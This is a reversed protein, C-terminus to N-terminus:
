LIGNVVGLRLTETSSFISIGKSFEPIWLHFLFSQRYESISRLITVDVNIAHSKHQCTKKENMPMSLMSYIAVYFPMLFGCINTRTHTHTPAYWFPRVVGFIFLFVLLLTQFEILITSAILAKDLTWVYLRLALLLQLPFHILLWDAYGYRLRFRIHTPM